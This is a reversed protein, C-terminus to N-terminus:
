NDLTPKGIGMITFAGGWEWGSRHKEIWVGAGLEPGVIYHTSLFCKSSM